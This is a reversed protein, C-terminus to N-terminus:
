FPIAQHAPCTSLEAIGLNDNYCKGGTQQVSYQNETLFIFYICSRLKQKIKFWTNTWRRALKIVKRCETQIYKWYPFFELPYKRTIKIQNFPLHVMETPDLRSLPTLIVRGLWPFIAALSLVQLSQPPSCSTPPTSWEPPTVRYLTWNINEM